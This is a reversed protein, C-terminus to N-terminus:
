CFIVGDLHWFLDFLCFFDCEKIQNVLRLEHLEESVVSSISVLLEEWVHMLFDDDDVLSRLCNEVVDCEDVESLDREDVHKVSRCRAREFFFVQIFLAIARLFDVRLFLVREQVVLAQQQKLEEVVISHRVPM